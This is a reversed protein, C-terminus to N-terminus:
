SGSRQLYQDIIQKTYIELREAAKENISQMQAEDLEDSTYHASLEYSMNGLILRVSVRPYNNKDTNASLRYRVGRYTQEGIICASDARRCEVDYCVEADNIQETRQMAYGKPKAFLTRSDLSVQGYEFPTGDDEPLFIDDSDRLAACFDEYLGYNEYPMYHVPTNFVLFTGLLVLIIGLVLLTIIEPKSKSMITEGRQVPANKHATLQM